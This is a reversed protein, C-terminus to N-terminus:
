KDNVNRAYVIARRLEDRRAVVRSLSMDQIPRGQQFCICATKATLRKPLLRMALRGFIRYM